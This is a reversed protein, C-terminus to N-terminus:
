KRSNQYELFRLFSIIILEMGKQEMKIICIDELDISKVLVFLIM